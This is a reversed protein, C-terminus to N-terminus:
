APGALVAAFQPGNQAVAEEALADMADFAAPVANDLRLTRAVRADPVPDQWRLFRVPTRLHPVLSQVLAVTANTQADAAVQLARVGRTWFGLGDSRERTVGVGLPVPCTGISVMEVSRAGALEIAELLAVCLPSSAWVGGDCFRREGALSALALLMPAAASALCADALTLDRDRAHAERHPTGIVRASSTAIDTTTVCLAIRRREYLGGMTEGGLAERLAGALARANGSPKRWHRTGWALATGGLPAPRPFIARGHLRYLAAVDRVSVGAALATGLIAGASTGVILDFRIGVDAGPDAGALALVREIVRATYYGRIAGGDLVLVRLLTADRGRAHPLPPNSSQM